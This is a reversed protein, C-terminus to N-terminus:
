EVIFWPNLIDEKNYTLEQENELSRVSKGVASVIAHPAATDWESTPGFRPYVDANGEAVLCFKIASGASIVAVDGFAARQKEIYDAFEPSQHSRSGIVTRPRAPLGALPLPAGAECLAAYSDASAANELKYAGSASAGFYLTKLVPAYVVGFVPVGEHVLGVNICFEGNRKVFEKTGDLPDVVWLTRWDKREGYEAQKSEESLIPFKVPLGELAESLVAQSRLDAQTLPSQDDKTEVSFDEAYVTLIEEGARLVAAVVAPAIEEITHHFEESSM